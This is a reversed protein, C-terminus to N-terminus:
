ELNWADRCMTGYDVRPSLFRKLDFCRAPPPPDIVLIVRCIHPEPDHFVPLHLAFSALRSDDDESRPPRYTTVTSALECM